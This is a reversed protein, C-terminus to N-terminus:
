PATKGQLTLTVAARRSRAIPLVLGTILSVEMKTGDRLLGQVFSPDIWHSRHIQLGVDPGLQSLAEGFGQLILTSGLTTYVRLYHLEASIAVLQGRRAAPIREMFMLLEQSELPGLVQPQTAAPLRLFRAANLGIWVLMLPPALNLWESFVEGLSFHENQALDGISSFALDLALALPAFLGSAAFSAVAMSTWINSLFPANHVLILQCGQAFALPIYIHIAWFAIRAGFSLGRSPGPDLVAFLMILGLGATSLFGLWSGRPDIRGFLSM